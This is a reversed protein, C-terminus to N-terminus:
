QQILEDLKSMTIGARRIQYGAFTFHAFFTALPNIAEEDVEYSMLVDAVLAKFTDSSNLTTLLRAYDPDDQYLSHKSVLTSLESFIADVTDQLTGVHDMSAPLEIPKGTTISYVKHESM